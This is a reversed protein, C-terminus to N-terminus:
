SFAVYLLWKESELVAALIWYLVYFPVTCVAMIKKVLRGCLKNPLFIFHLLIFILFNFYFLILYAWRVLIDDSFCVSYTSNMDMLWQVNSCVSGCAHTCRHTHTHTRPVLPLIILRESKCIKLFSIKYCVYLYAGWLSMKALSPGCVRCYDWM